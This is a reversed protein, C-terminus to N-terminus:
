AGMMALMPAVAMFLSVSVSGVAVFFKGTADMARGFAGKPPAAPDEIKKEAFPDDEAPDDLPGIVPQENAWSRRAADRERPSLAEDALSGSGMDDDGADGLRAASFEPLEEDEARAGNGSAACGVVGALVLLGVAVGRGIRGVRM